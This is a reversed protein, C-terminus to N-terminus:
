KSAVSTTARKLRGTLVEGLGIAALGLALHVIQILWHPGTTLINDQTVGVIYLLVGDLIAAIALPSNEGRRLSLGALWWLSLVLLIGFTMHIPQLGDHTGPWIVVGLVLVILASVRIIMSPITIAPM